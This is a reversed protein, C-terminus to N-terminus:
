EKWKKPRVPSSKAVKFGFLKPEYEVFPKAGIKPFCLQFIHAASPGFFAGDLRANTPSDPAFLGKCRPCFVKVTSQHPM